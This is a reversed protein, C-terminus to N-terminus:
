AIGAGIIIIILLLLLIAFTCDMGCNVFMREKRATMWFECKLWCVVYKNSHNSWSDSNRDDQQFDHSGGKLATAGIESTIM